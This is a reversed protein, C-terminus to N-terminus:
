LNRGKYGLLEPPSSLIRWLFFFYGCFACFACVIIFSREQIGNVQAKQAKKRSFSIPRHLQLMARSNISKALQSPWLRNNMVGAGARLEERGANRVLISPV